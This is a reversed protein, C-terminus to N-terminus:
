LHRSSVDFHCSISSARGSVSAVRCSRSAACRYTSVCSIAASAASRPHYRLSRRLCPSVVKTQRIWKNRQIEVMVMVIPRGSLLVPMQEGYQLSLSGIDLVTDWVYRCIFVDDPSQLATVSVVLQRRGVPRLELGLDLQAALWLLKWCGDLLQRV